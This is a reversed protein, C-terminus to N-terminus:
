FLYGCQICCVNLMISATTGFLSIGLTTILVESFHFNAFDPNLKGPKHLNINTLTGRFPFIPCTIFITTIHDPSIQINLYWVVGGLVISFLFSFKPVTKFM